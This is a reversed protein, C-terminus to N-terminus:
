MPIKEFDVCEKVTCNNKVNKVIIILDMINSSDM